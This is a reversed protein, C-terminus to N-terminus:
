DWAIRSWTARAARRAHRPLRVASNRWRLGWRLPIMAFGAVVIRTGRLPTTRDRATLIAERRLIRWVLLFARGTQTRRVRRLGRVADAVCRRRRRGVGGRQRRRNITRLGVTREDCDRRIIQMGCGMGIHDLADWVGGLWCRRPDSM